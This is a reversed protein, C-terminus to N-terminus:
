FHATLFPRDRQDRKCCWHSSLPPPLLLLFSILLRLAAFFIARNLDKNVVGGSGYRFSPSSFSFSFFFSLLMPAKEFCDCEFHWVNDLQRSKKKSPHRLACMHLLHHTLFFQAFLSCFHWFGSCSWMVAFHTFLFTIRVDPGWADDGQELECPTLSIRVLSTLM